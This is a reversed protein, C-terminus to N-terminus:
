CSACLDMRGLCAHAHQHFAQLSVQVSLKLEGLWSCGVGPALSCVCRLALASVKVAAKSAHQCMFRCVAPVPLLDHPNSALLEVQSLIDELQLVQQVAVEELITIHAPQACLAFNGTLASDYTACCPELWAAQLRSEVEARRWVACMMKQGHQQLIHLFQTATSDLFLLDLGLQGGNGSVPGLLVQVKCVVLGPARDDELNSISAYCRSHVAQTGDWGGQSPMEGKSCAEMERFFM